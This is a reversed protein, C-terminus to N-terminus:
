EPSQWLYLSTPNEEMPETTELSDWISDVENDYLIQRAKEILESLITNVPVDVNDSNEVTLVGSENTYNSFCDSISELLGEIEVSRAQADPSLAM